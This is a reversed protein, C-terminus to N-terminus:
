TGIGIFADTAIVQQPGVRNRHHFFGLKGSELTVHSRVELALPHDAEVNRVGIFEHLRFQHLDNPRSKFTDNALSVRAGAGSQTM